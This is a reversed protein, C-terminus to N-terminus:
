LKVSCMHPPPDTRYPPTPRDAHPPTGLYPPTPDSLLKWSRAELRQSKTSFGSIPLRSVPLLSYPDPFLFVLLRPDQNTFRSVAFCHFRHFQSFHLTFRVTGARSNRNADLIRRFTSIIPLSASLKQPTNEIPQPAKDRAACKVLFAPVLPVLSWPFLGGWRRLGTAGGTRSGPPSCPAPQHTREGALAPQRATVHAAGLSAGAALM